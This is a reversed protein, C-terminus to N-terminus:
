FIGIGLRAHGRRRRPYLADVGKGARRIRAGIANTGYEDADRAFGDLEPESFRMSRHLFIERPPDGGHEGASTQFERIAFKAAEERDLHCQRSNKSRWPGLAGNPSWSFCTGSSYGGLGDRGPGQRDSSDNFHRRPCIPKSYAGKLPM